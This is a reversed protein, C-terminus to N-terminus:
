VRWKGKIVSVMQRKFNKHILIHTNLWATPTGATYGLRTPTCTGAVWAGQMISPSHSHGTITKYALKKFQSVSGRSGGIGRDGHSSVLIDGIFYLEDRGLFKTVESAYEGSWSDEFYDRFPNIERGQEINSLTKYMLWHYVKLNKYDFLKDFNSEMWKVIHDNHNASVVINEKVFTPTNDVLFRCTDDLERIVSNNGSVYKSYRSFISNHNHHSNHLNWDLLDHMVIRSPRCVNIISDANKYTANITEEDAATVHVDGLVIAECGGSYSVHEGDYFKDLDYFSGDEGANLQRFHFFGDDMELVIASYSHNMDAKAGAKRETNYSPVSITGTTHMMIPHADGYVPLMKM